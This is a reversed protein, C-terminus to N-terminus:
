RSEGERSLSALYAEIVAIDEAHDIEVASARRARGRSLVWRIIFGVPRTELETVQRYLVGGDVAQTSHVTTTTVDPLFIRTTFSVPREHALTQAELSFPTGERTFFDVRARCGAVGWEGELVTIGTIRPAFDVQAQRDEFWDWLTSVSTAFVADRVSTERYPKAMNAERAGNPRKGPTATAALRALSGGSLRSMLVSLLTAIALREATMGVPTM